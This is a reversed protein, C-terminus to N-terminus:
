SLWMREVGLLRDWNASQASQQKKDKGKLAKRVAKKERENENDIRKFDKRLRGMPKCNIGM